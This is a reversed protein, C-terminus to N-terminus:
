ASVVVRGARWRLDNFILSKHMIGNMFRALNFLKKEDVFISQLVAFIKMANKRM